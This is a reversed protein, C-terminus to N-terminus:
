PLGGSLRTEVAKKLVKMASGTHVGLRVLGPLQWPKRVLSRMVGRMNVRGDVFLPVLAAPPLDMDATDAIVRLVAFPIDANSAAQMVAQSEMDACLCGSQLFLTRKDHARELITGSAWVPGSLAQPLKKKLTETLGADCEVCAEVACVRSGIVLTGSSLGPKLGGALGFSLLQTAGQNVLRLANEHALGPQAASCMVKAGKIGRAIVAEAELGCLIGLM